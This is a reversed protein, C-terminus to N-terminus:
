GVHPQLPHLMSADPPEAAEPLYHYDKYPIYRRYQPKLHVLSHPFMPNKGSDHQLVFPTMGETRPPYLPYVQQVTPEVFEPTPNEMVPVPAQVPGGDAPQYLYESQQAYVVPSSPLPSQVVNWQYQNPVVSHHHHYAPQQYVPQHSQPLMAPPASPWHPAPANACYFYAVGNQYTYPYGASTTLYLTGSSMPLPMAFDPITVLASKNQGLLQQKRIAQGISLKKDKFCIGNTDHLIKLADDQTEFTVFGYGKSMGSRDIVIKVEKVAGHQSFVHRLDSENVKCDIGGVFIRNPIVTGSRPTHHTLSDVHNEPPLVDPISYTSGNQFQCCSTFVTEEMAVNM